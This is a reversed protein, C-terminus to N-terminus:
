KNSKQYAAKKQLYKKGTLISGINLMKNAVGANDVNVALHRYVLFSFKTVFLFSAKEHFKLNISHFIFFTTKKCFMIM